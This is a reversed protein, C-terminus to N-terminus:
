SALITFKMRCTDRRNYFKAELVFMNTSRYSVRNDQVLRQYLQELSLDKVEELHKNWNGEIIELVKSALPSDLEDIKARINEM